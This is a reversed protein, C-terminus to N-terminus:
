FHGANAVPLVTGWAMIAMTAVGLCYIRLDLNDGFGLGLSGRWSGTYAHVALPDMDESLFFVPGTGNRNYWATVVGGGPGTAYCDIGQVVWCRGDSPPSITYNASLGLITEQPGWTVPFGVESFSLPLSSV